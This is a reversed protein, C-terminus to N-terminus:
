AARMVEQRLVLDAVVVVIVITVMVVIVVMVMVIRGVRTATVGGEEGIVHQHLRLVNLAPQLPTPASLDVGRSGGGREDLATEHDEGEISEKM